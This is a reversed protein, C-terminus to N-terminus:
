STNGHILKGHCILAAALQHFALFSEPSREYCLRLRRHHNFWSLGSEVVWRTRGLGSGHGDDMPRALVPRIGRQRTARINEDWGYARDGQFAQPRFRPRGLGHSIPPISDLLPIAVQGDPVNAPTTMVTVPLGRADTIL